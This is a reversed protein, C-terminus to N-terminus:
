KKPSGTTVAVVTELIFQKVAFPLYELFFRNAYLDIPQAFVYNPLVWAGSRTSLHVEKSRCVYAGAYLRNCYLAMYIRM